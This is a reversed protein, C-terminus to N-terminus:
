LVSQDLTRAFGPDQRAVLNEQAQLVPEDTATAPLIDDPADRVKKAVAAPDDVSEQLTTAARRFAGRNSGFDLAKTALNRSATTAVSPLAGLTVGGFLEAFFQGIPGFEEEEAIVRGTAAGAAGGAEAASARVATLVDKTKSKGAAGGGTFFEAIEDGLGRLIGSTQPAVAGEGKAIGSAVAGESKVANRALAVASPARSAKVAGGSIGLGPVLLENALVAINETPTEPEPFGVISLAEDARETLNTPLRFSPVPVGRERLPEALMDGAKLPLNIAGAVIDSLMPGFKSFGGVIGRASLAVNRGFSSKGEVPSGGTFQALKEAADEGEKVTVSFTQGDKDIEFTEPM